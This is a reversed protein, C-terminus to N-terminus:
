KEAGKEKKKYSNNYHTKYIELLDNNKLYDLFEKIIDLCRQEL